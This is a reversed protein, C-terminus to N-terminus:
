AGKPLKQNQPMLWLLLGVLTLLEVTSSINLSIIQWTVASSIPGGHPRMEMFVGSCSIIQSIVVLLAAVSGLRLRSQLLLSFRSFFPTMRGTIILATIWVVPIILVVYRLLEFPLEFAYKGQLNYYRGLVVISSTCIAWSISSLITFLLISAIMWFARERWIKQPNAKEFEEALQQPQGIRRSALWFSEEDNLGRGRLEAMSDALHKELERRDDPTLQPQATLENRWREVATNLDFRTQTAMIQILYQPGGAM